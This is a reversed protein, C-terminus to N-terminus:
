EVPVGQEVKTWLKMFDKLDWEFALASDLNEYERCETAVLSPSLPSDGSRLRSSDCYGVYKCTACRGCSM